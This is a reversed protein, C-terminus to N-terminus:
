NKYLENEEIYEKVQSPVLNSIDEGSEIKKRLGTSSINEYPLPQFEFDYGKEKLYNYDSINFKDERIFVIFKVLKKLKDTEYWTEINKFADTGIIFGIKEEIKLNKYLESITLYTYSKGKRKYEIDSIEFNKNSQIALEVMRYRHATLDPNYSKHPPEYAPIFLIKEFGFKDCVYNAVRL